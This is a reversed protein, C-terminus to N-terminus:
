ERPKEFELNRTFPKSLDTVSHLMVNSDGDVLFQVSHVYPLRCLSNVISYILLEDSVPHSEETFSNTFNVYCVYDTTVVNIISTKSNITPYADVNVPGAILQGLIYEELSQNNNAITFRYTVPVLYQGTSNAFLLTLDTEQKLMGDESLIVNVFSDATMTGIIRNDTDTIPNGDVTFNVGKVGDIQIVTCVLAARLIIEQVLTMHKYESNFDVTLIGDESVVFDNIEVADPKASYLQEERLDTNFMQDMLAKATSYVDKTDSKPMLYKKFEIYDANKNSYYVLYQKGEPDAPACSILEAAFIVCLTVALIRKILKFKKM